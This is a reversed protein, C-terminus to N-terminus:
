KPDLTQPPHHRPLPIAIRHPPTVQVQVWCPQLQQCCVSLEDVDAEHRGVLDSGVEDGRGCTASASTSSEGTYERLKNNLRLIRSSKLTPAFWVKAAGSCHRTFYEAKRIDTADIKHAHTFKSAEKSGEAMDRMGYLSRAQAALSDKEFTTETGTM